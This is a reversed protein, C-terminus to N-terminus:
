VYAATRSGKGRNFFFTLAIIAVGFAFGLYEFVYDAQVRQCRSKLGNEDPRGPCVDFGGVTQCGGTLLKNTFRAIRSEYDDGTCSPIPKLAVTLAIAGALYLATALGDAIMPVIAPVKDIFLAAIGVLSVLIGFAGCFSGFSTESPPAGEVQQKALTVSLGLVVASFLLLFGRVGLAALKLM